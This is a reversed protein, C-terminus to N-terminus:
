PAPWSETVLRARVTKATHKFGFRSALSSGLDSRLFAM